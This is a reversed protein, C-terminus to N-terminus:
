LATFVAAAATIAATAFASPSSSKGNTKPPSPALM